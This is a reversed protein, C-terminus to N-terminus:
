ELYARDIWFQKENSGNTFTQNTSVQEGTGSAFRTHIYVNDPLTFGVGVRLRMRFVPTDSKGAASDSRFVKDDYRLRYDGGVKMEKLVNSFKLDTDASVKSTFGFLSIFVVFASTFVIGKKTSARIM